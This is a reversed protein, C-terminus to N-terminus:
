KQEKSQDRNNRDSSRLNMGTVINHNTNKQQIPIHLFLITSVMRSQYLIDEFEKTTSKM